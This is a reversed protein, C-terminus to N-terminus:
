PTATPTAAPAASTQQAVPTGQTLLLVIGTKENFGYIRALPADTGERCRIDVEWSGRGLDTASAYIPGTCPSYLKGSTAEAYIHRYVIENVQEPALRAANDACAIALSIAPLMALLIAPIRM